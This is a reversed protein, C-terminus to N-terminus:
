REAVLATAGQIEIVYVSTGAPLQSHEDYSRASWIEGGLKIRGASDTGVPEIVVGVTGVLAATGTRTAPTSKLHRTAVPRVVALLLVSVIAFVGFQLPVGGGLLATVAGGAAGGALMLFILDVTLLEAAALLLAAVAWWVWADM